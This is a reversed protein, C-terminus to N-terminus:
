RTFASLMETDYNSVVLVWSFPIQPLASNKRYRECYKIPYSLCVNQRPSHLQVDMPNSDRDSSWVPKQARTKQDTLQFFSVKQLFKQAHYKEHYKSKAPIYAM